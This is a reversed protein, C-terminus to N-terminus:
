DEQSKISVNVEDLLLAPLLMSGHWTRKKGVASVKEKLAKFVNLSFMADKIRGQIRGNKIKYGLSINGSVQGGYPNGAWAGMTQAILVGEELDSIMAEMTESGPELLLNAPGPGNEGGCGNSKEGLKEATELDLIYNKLVGNELLPFSSCPTGERDFPKSAAGRDLTGANILTLQPSIAQEGLQDQWPSLGRTIAKGNLCEELPWLIDGVTAPTMIVPYNGPSLNVNQRGWDIKQLLDEIELEWNISDWHTHELFSYTELMNQGEILRVGLLVEFSSKFYEGKFGSSNELHVQKEVKNVQVTAQLDSHYSSTKEVFDRAPDILDELKMEAGQKDWVQPQELPAPGPFAFDVRPGMLATERAMRGLDGHSDPRTNEALGLQGGTILRLIERKQEGSNIKKLRNNQFNVTVQRSKKQLLEGEEGPKLLKKLSM